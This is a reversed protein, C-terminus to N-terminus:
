NLFKNVAKQKTICINFMVVKSVDVRQIYKTNFVFPQQMWKLKSTKHNCKPCNSYIFNSLYSHAHTALLTIFM